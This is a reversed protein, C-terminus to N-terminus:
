HGLVGLLEDRSFATVATTTDAAGYYVLYADDREVIGTPFVVNPVFGEREFPTEPVLIPEASRGLVRRPDELDLLLAGASYTGVAPTGAARQSGHYIELWGAPTRIPPAGAGIRGTEWTSGGSHFQEHRGWHILDRSRALWMEPRTFPTAANPRHLAAYEEGIREPFLVVDKNEPYFIIGRREFESFDRTSALATAAGHRSVAVYTIYFTEGLRTIRADEVGYAEYEDQPNLRAGSTSDISRGDASRMVRVHSVFTLRVLGDRRYRVVRSDVRELEEDRVWDVTPGSGAEWRPLGTMGPRKERPREAVRVLLVVENGVAIAGPNFAGVVEFDDRSPELDSPDVLRKTWVRRIVEGGKWIVV